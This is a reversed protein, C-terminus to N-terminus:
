FYFDYPSEKKKKKGDEEDSDGDVSIYKM